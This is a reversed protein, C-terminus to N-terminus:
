LLNEAMKENTLALGEAEEAEKRTRRRFFGLRWLLLVLLALLVLGGLVSGLVVLVPLESLVEKRLGLVVVRTPRDEQLFSSSTLDLHLNACTLIELSRFKVKTALTHHQLRGSISVQVTSRAAVSLRCEVALSRSNSRNLQPTHTLDEEKETTHATHAPLSCHGGGAPLTSYSTLNLLRTGSPTVAWVDLGLQLDSVPFMALNQVQYMLTTDLSSSSSPPSSSIDYHHSDPHRTFLLDAEYQLPLHLHNMNDAPNREIGESSAEIVVEMHDLFGLHSFDFEVHFSLQARSRMFPASINCSRQSALEAHCEIQLDSQDKVLISSLVLNPSHRLHLAAGFANEGLNELRGYVVVRRRSSEVVRVSAREAGSAPGGRGSVVGGQAPVGGKQEPGAGQQRCLAPHGKVGCFQSLTPLDSHAHLVLDPRCSEEHECGNWFPLETRLVSPWDPDLVTGDDPTQLGTETVVLIPRGYDPTEQVSFSIPRCLEQGPLLSLLLLRDESQDLVARPPVRREDLGLSVWVGVPATTPTPAPAATRALLCVSLSMCSVERGGRQCDKHFLNVKEPEFTVRSSIRLVSRSWITAVGGLAGVSLDVLGDANLDLVGHLSLGLYQLGSGLSVASIRQRYNKQIRDRKGYFVYVAGQHDDELPAGVVLESWGDGNMDPIPALASGLRANQAHESGELVGQHVLTGQASLAWMYVRGREWGQCYYMPAAVLLVDTDGDGDLDVSALESGFYSGIQQGLLSHLISLHGTNKMTFVIVKGTHNFRPAGAVYLQRRRATVMSGVAYGLYAAHNQLSEPFEELYSSRPPIVKGKPTEKLVAGNWDYAGVAGVLVGDQVLHSSFGAQAMQLGFKRGESNTGEISFIREGLAEVIDKLASEDSVKFFHQDEPDSALLRIEKLFSAPDIGLRTYSGLVAIAYTTINAKRSLEVARPLEASDHSEGDTIVIMVKKAGRRGGRAFAEQRAKNIGLATRTEEGGRQEISRAAAVVEEVTQFDSLAFEHVVRSGYQVVGVQTQGRGVYFKELIKILFNQVEYWPYISNSGDLVIVIDMFTECRQLAPAITSSFKFNRGIRSCIGTSYFSSGCEHSWLPGCTVFSQDKPNSTLSLGLKMHEKRESVDPLSVRGLHLRSCNKRVDLPCRYVDGTQQGDSSELPAGVLLWPRGGAMHQQVTYGFQTGPPGRHLGARTPHFVFALPLDPLLSCIWMTLFCYDM